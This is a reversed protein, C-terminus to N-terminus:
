RKPGELAIRLAALAEKLDSALERSDDRFYAIANKAPTSWRSRPVGARQMARARLLQLEAIEKKNAEGEMQMRLAQGLSRDAESFKGMALLAQGRAREVIALVSHGAGFLKEFMPQLTTFELLAAEANGLSLRLLAINHRVALMEFSGADFHFSWIDRARLYAQLASEDQGLGGRINGILNYLDGLKRHNEPLVATLHPLSLNAAQLAETYRSDSLAIAATQFYVNGLRESREDGFSEFIKRARILADNAISLNSLAAAYNAQHLWLDGVEPHDDGVVTRLITLADVVAEMAQEAKGQEHLLGAREALIKAQQYADGAACARAEADVFLRAAENLHKQKREFRALVRLMDIRLASPSKVRSVSAELRHSWERGLQTNGDLDVLASLRDRWVEASILDLDHAEALDLAEDLLLSAEKARGGRLLIHGARSLSSALTPPHDLRRARAVARDIAETWREGQRFAAHTSAKALLDRVEEASAATHHGAPVDHGGELAGQDVCLSLDPLEEIARFAGEWFPRALGGQPQVLAGVLEAFQQRSDAFCARSRAYIFDSIEARSHQVCTDSIRTTWETAYNDLGELLPAAMPSGGPTAKSLAAQIRARVSPDWTTELPRGIGSCVQAAARFEWVGAGVCLGGLLAVGVFIGRRRWRQRRRMLTDSEAELQEILENMTPWRHQPEPSLGRIVAAWIRSSLESPGAGIIALSAEITEARNCAFPRTGDLLEFAVMCFSFQDALADCHEGALQEPAMYAPTGVTTGAITVDRALPKDGGAIQTAGLDASPSRGFRKNTKATAMGDPCTERVLGFDLVRVRQDESVVVNEPKFDRHVLGADHAAALGRGAQILLRLTTAIFEARELYSVATSSWERLTRGSIFEMALFTSGGHEGIEYVQVVNPHSLKALGQAERALRMRHCPTAQRERLLKVAIKRDLRDDYCAYVIGMGGEGIKELVSYRGIRTASPAPVVSLHLLRDDPIDWGSQLDQHPAAADLVQRAPRPGHQLFDLNERTSNDM